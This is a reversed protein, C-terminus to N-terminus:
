IENLKDALWEIGHWVGKAEDAVYKGMNSVVKDPRLLLEWNHKLDLVHFGTAHELQRVPNPDYWKDKVASDFGPIEALVGYAPNLEKGVIERTKEQAIEMGTDFMDSFNGSKIARGMRLAEEISPAGEVPSYGFVGSVGKDGVWRIVNPDMQLPLDDPLNHMFRHAQEDINLLNDKPTEAQPRRNKMMEQQQFYDQGIPRNNM